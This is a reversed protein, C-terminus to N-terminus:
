SADALSSLNIMTGCRFGLPHIHVPPNWLAVDPEILHTTVNFPEESNYLPPSSSEEEYIAICYEGSYVHNFM